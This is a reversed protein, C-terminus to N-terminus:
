RGGRGRRRACAALGLPDGDAVPGDGDIRTVLGRRVGIAERVISSCTPPRGSRRSMGGSPGPREVSATYGSGVARRPTTSTPGASITLDSRSPRIRRSITWVPVCVSHTCGRTVARAGAAPRSRWPGRPASTPRRAPRRRRRGRGARTRARRRGGGCGSSTTPACRARQHDAVVDVVAPGVEGDDDVGLDVRVRESRCNSVAM